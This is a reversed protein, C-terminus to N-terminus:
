LTLQHTSSGLWNPCEEVASDCVTIVLDIQEDRFHDVNKSVGNHKIGIEELVLLAYPHVYGAPHIGASYAQWTASLEQNVVAEAMQSRCSNGTCLFLVKHKM